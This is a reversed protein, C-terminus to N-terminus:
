EDRKRKYFAETELKERETEPSFVYTLAMILLITGWIPFTLWKIIFRM